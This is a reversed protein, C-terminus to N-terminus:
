WSQQWRARRRVNAALSVMELCSDSQDRAIKKSSNQPWREEARASSGFPREAALTQALEREAAACKARCATGLMSLLRGTKNGKEYRRLSTLTRWRGRKAVEEMTRVNMARDHSAGGHRLMYAHIPVSNNGVLASARALAGSLWGKTEPFLPKGKPAETAVARLLPLLQRAFPSDDLALANDFDGVKTPQGRAFPRVELTWPGARGPPPALFDEPFVTRLEGPRLYASFMLGLAAAEHRRGKRLLEVIM